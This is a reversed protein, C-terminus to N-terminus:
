KAFTLPKKMGLEISQKATKCYGSIGKQLYSNSRILNESLNLADYYSLYGGSVYGGLSVSNDRLQPHGNGNISNITEKYWNVVWESQKSTITINLPKSIIPAKDFESLKIGKQKWTESNERILIDKDWGIFLLLVANNVAIDFGNYVEMEASLGFSYEKFEPKTKVIPIKVLAKVGKRSPSLWAAIISKYENFLFEKFELANSIKDFDLVCLGTYSTISEYRRFDSVNVAPTFAYLHEKLETKLKDNGESAAKQIQALLEKTSDKPNRISELFKDLTIFGEPKSSNVDNKYYQFKINEYM